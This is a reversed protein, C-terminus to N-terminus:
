NLKLKIKRIYGSKSCTWIWDQYIKIKHISGAQFYKFELIPIMRRNHLCFIALTYPNGMCGTAMFIKDEAIFLKLNDFQSPTIFENVRQDWEM